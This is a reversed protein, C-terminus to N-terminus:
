KVHVSVTRCTSTGLPILERVREAHLLNESKACHEAPSIQLRLLFQSGPIINALKTKDAERYWLSKIQRLM